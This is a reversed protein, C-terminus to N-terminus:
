SRYHHSYLLVFFSGASEEIHSNSAKNLSNEVLIQDLDEIKTLESYCPCFSTVTLM